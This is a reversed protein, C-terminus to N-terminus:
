ESFSSVLRNTPASGCRNRRRQIRGSALLTLPMGLLLLIVSHPEPLSVAVASPLFDTANNVNGVIVSFDGTDLLPIPNSSFTTLPISLSLTSPTVGVQSTYTVPVTDIPNFGNTTVVDILGPAGHVPDGESSLNIYADIGAFGAPFQGFGPEFGNSDLFAGTVGTASNKDTDINIFGYIADTNGSSPGEIALNSFTLTFKLNTGDNEGTISLLTIAPGPAAPLASSNHTYTVIGASAGRTVALTTALLLFFGQVSTLRM